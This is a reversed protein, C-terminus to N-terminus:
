PKGQSPWAFDAVVPRHDSAIPQNLVVTSGVAWPANKSVFIYDIKKAPREAPITPAGHLGGASDFHTLVTRIPASEPTANFDGALIMPPSAPDASLVRMLEEAQAARDANSQFDLHATVFRFDPRGHGPSITVALAIRQEKDPQSPLKYVHPDSIPYRSLIVQGYDGGQYDIAKGFQVHLGTLRALEAAEDVPVRKTRVDVEQVAVLDARNDTIIKAIRPVDVRGDSGGAHHINYTMVRFTTEPARSSAAHDTAACGAASLVLTVAVSVLKPLIRM